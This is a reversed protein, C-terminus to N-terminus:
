LAHKIRNAVDAAGLGYKRRLQRQTGHEIFLDPLGIRILKVQSMNKDHLLASVGSGFGGHLVGEEVTVLLRSGAASELILEEDLPKIYRANIVAASIGDGALSEAAEIATAVCSGVAIIAVDKGEKILKGKGIPLQEHNADFEVGSGYGRPYRVAMPHGANISTYLLNALEREDSAAAVIMNPICNLYALDFLGQHTKGDDGVIGGRDIAFAVPLDQLCVDHIIQDYARQLFTSYIAVIPKYGRTALGAAMTTAHQECIGVDFVRDPLKDKVFNLGTGDLMAATIAVVKPDRKMLDITTLAFVKSFTLRETSKKPAAVGHYGVPDDEALKYGMGKLTKIHLFVPGDTYNKARKLADEVEKIDHGNVPGLYTFGLEEWIVNPLLLGKVSTIVRKYILETQPGKVLRQLLRIPGRSIRRLRRSFRLKNLSNAVAGVSPSISMANDNLIVILRKDTHGAQNLAELAMGGTLSGDGIIAAVHYDGGSLDRAVAIGYAASISNSAHGSIFADHESENRDTFGSLGGMKRLTHFQERRGTLLKHTYSQHGVDWVIKDEPSDFIRHLAITFEVTGLSSALHGGNKHVTEIIEDRLESALQELQSQKLPKLDQPGKISDLIRTM